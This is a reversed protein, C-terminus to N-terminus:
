IRSITHNANKFADERAKSMIQSLMAKEQQRAMMQQQMQQETQIQKQEELYTKTDSAGPYHLMEMKNWFLILTDISNPDGFAGTQLNMRTEQWMAERNSALPATNDCSFLFNDNWFWEGNEDQELFDYKNFESYKTNGHNDKSHVPRPEDAYALKFKFMAEFLAAYAADKMMRKSELRGATQAAAFEKAKGSTATRDVRGQYSDTIGIAQRAEEYIQALYAMDQSIEGELTYVDIMAKSAANGPRIIKMDESDARISADDPLTIYSGAKLLKEIIKAEIRNIANQHSAIKDVDSDGLFSGYVSVNKQLVVPYIDPKYFPIKTPVAVAEAIINGLEDATQKEQMTVGPIVGGNSLIIPTYIEEYEETSDEWKTSGCYPCTKAGRRHPKKEGDPPTGDETAEEYAEIKNPEVAGCKKCRRLRRAQYDEIDELEVDNVWSYVGIGGNDNRYYAKIQTVMDSSAEESEFSKIEPESESEDGVSVKYRREIYAKTQPLAIFIYDMDEIGSYVGDQPIIQRPHLGSIILEGITSHTRETNDWEVLWASGGQIPVTREAMDNIYEMPLRDLENRLMDEILKAKLEDKERIATVKPQPINSNVQAEVLESCINRVLPTKTIRDGVIIKKIEGDGKYLRERGDMKAIEDNYATQATTYRDQWERLRHNM